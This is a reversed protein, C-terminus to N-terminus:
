AFPKITHQLLSLGLSTSFGPTAGGPNEKQTDLLQVYTRVPM